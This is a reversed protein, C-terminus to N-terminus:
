KRGAPVILPDADNQERDLLIIMEQGHQPIHLPVRSRALKTSRALAQRHDLRQCRRRPSWDPSSSSPGTAIDLFNPM